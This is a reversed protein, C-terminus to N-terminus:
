ETLAAVLEGTSLDWVRAVGDRGGAAVYAGDASLDVAYIEEASDTFTNLRSGSRFDWVIVSKDASGSVVIVQNNRTGCDIAYVAGQHGNYVRVLAGQTQLNGAEGVSETVRWSRLVTDASGSVIMNDEPVFAVAYVAADNQDFNVLVEYTQASWIKVTKDKGGTVFYKGDARFDIGFVRDIHQTLTREIDGSDLAIVSVEEDMSATLVRSGDASVAVAEITDAHCDVVQIAEGSAIDWVHLEGNQAPQGSGAFLTEGDRAFTICRVADSHPELDQIVERTGLDWLQVWQYRGVALYNGDPSFRISWIPSPDLQAAVPPTAAFSVLLSFISISMLAANRRQM